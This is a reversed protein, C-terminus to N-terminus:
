FGSGPEEPVSQAQSSKPNLLVFTALATYAVYKSTKALAEKRTILENGQDDYQKNNNTKM